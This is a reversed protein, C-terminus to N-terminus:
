VATYVSADPELILFGGSLCKTDREEREFDRGQQEAYLKGRPLKWLAALRERSKNTNLVLMDAQAPPRRRADLLPWCFSELRIVVGTRADFFMVREYPLQWLHNKRGVQEPDTLSNPVHAGTLGPM